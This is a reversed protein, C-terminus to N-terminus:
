FRKCGNKPYSSRSVSDLLLPDLVSPFGEIGTRTKWEREKRKKLSQIQILRYMRVSDRPM